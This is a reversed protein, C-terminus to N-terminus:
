SQKRFLEGLHVEIRQGSQQVPLHLELSRKPQYEMQFEGLRNCTTRGLLQKGSVLLVPVNAMRQEPQTRNIIQGVLVATSDGPEQEIRLDVSFDGAEYVTQRTTGKPSRVGVALPQSFSDFVLKGLLRPLMGLREPRNLAFIAQASRLVHEPVQYTSDAAAARQVKQLTKVVPACAACASLHQDMAIRQSENCLGRVFDLWQEMKYHKM